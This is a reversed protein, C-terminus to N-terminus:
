VAEHQGLFITDPVLHEESSVKGEGRYIGGDCANAPEIFHQIAGFERAEICVLDLGHDVPVAKRQQAELSRMLVGDRVSSSVGCLRQRKASSHHSMVGGESM